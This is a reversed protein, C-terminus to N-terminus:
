CGGLVDPDGLAFFLLFLSNFFYKENKEFKKLKKEIKKLKTKIKKSFKHKKHQARVGGSSTRRRPILRM